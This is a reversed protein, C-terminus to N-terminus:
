THLLLAAPPNQPKKLPWSHTQQFLLSVLLMVDSAEYSVGPCIPNCNDTRYDCLYKVIAFMPCVHKVKLKTHETVRHKNM